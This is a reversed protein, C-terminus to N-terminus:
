SLPVGHEAPLHEAPRHAIPTGHGIYLLLAPIADYQTLAQRIRAVAEYHMGGNPALKFRRGTLEVM